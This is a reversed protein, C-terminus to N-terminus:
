LMHCVKKREEEQRQYPVKANWERNIRRLEEKLDKESKAKAQAELETASTHSVTSSTASSGQNAKRNDTTSSSINVPASPATVPAAKNHPQPPHDCLWSIAMDVNLGCAIIAALCDNEAFGMALLHDLLEDRSRIEAVVDLSPTQSVSTGSKATASEAPTVSDKGKNPSSDKLPTKMDHFQQTTVNVTEEHDDDGDEEGKSKKKDKKKKKKSKGSEDGVSGPSAASISGANSAALLGLFVM